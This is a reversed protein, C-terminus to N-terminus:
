QMLKITSRSESCHNHMKIKFDNWHDTCALIQWFTTSSAPMLKNIRSCKVGDSLFRYYLNKKNITRYEVGGHGALRGWSLLCFPPLMMFWENWIVAGLQFIYKDPSYNNLQWGDETGQWFHNLLTKKAQVKHDTKCQLPPESTSARYLLDNVNKVRFGMTLRVISLSSYPSPAPCQVM